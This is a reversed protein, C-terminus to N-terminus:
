CMALNSFYRAAFSRTPSVLTTDLNVSRKLKPHKELSDKM